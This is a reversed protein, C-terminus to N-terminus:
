LRRWYKLFTVCKMLIPHTHADTHTHTYTHQGWDNSNLLFDHRRIEHYDNPLQGLPWAPHTPAVSWQACASWLACHHSLPHLLRPNLRLRGQLPLALLKIRAHIHMCTCTQIDTERHTHIYTHLYCAPVVVTCCYCCCCRLCCLLKMLIGHGPSTTALM